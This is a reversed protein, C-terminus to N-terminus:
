PAPASPGHGQAWRRVDPRQHSESLHLFRDPSSRVAPRAHAWPATGTPGPPSASWSTDLGQGQPMIRTLRHFTARAEEKSKGAPQHLSILDLRRNPSCKEQRRRLLPRSPVEVPLRGRSSPAPVVPRAVQPRVLRCRHPRRATEKRRRFAVTHNPPPAPPRALAPRGPPAGPAPLRPPKM